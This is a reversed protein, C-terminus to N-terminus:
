RRLSVILLYCVIFWATLGMIHIKHVKKEEKEFPNVLERDRAAKKSVAEWYEEEPNKM